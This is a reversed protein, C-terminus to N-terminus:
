SEKDRQDPTPFDYARFDASGRRRRDLSAKIIRLHDEHSRSVERSMNERHLRRYVLVDPLIEMVAGAEAALLFWEQADGHKLGTNFQTVSEFLARRALLTQAVYGPVPEALRHNRFREAEEQLEPIWFNQVYTVCLDLVPRARFRAIQRELKEPHWLDDADLFAIL